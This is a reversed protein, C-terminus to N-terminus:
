QIVEKILGHEVHFVKKESWGQYNILDIDPTTVVLQGGFSKVTEMLLHRHEIDLEAALDDILIIPLKDSVTRLHSIQALKLAIVVLKLQGRSLIEVAKGGESKVSIDARHPGVTTHKLKMDVDRSASLAEGLTLSSSHGSRFGLSVVLGPLM